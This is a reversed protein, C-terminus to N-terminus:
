HAGPPGCCFCRSRRVPQVKLPGECFTQLTRGALGSPVVRIVAEPRAVSVFTDGGRGVQSRVFSSSQDIAQTISSLAARQLPRERPRAKLRLRESFPYQIPPWKRQVRPHAKATVPAFVCVEGVRARESPLELTQRLFTTGHLVPIASRLCLSLDTLIKSRALPRCWPSDLGDMSEDVRV